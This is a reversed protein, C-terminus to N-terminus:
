KKGPAIKITTKSQVVHTTKNTVQNVGGSNIPLFPGMHEMYERGSINIREVSAKESKEM